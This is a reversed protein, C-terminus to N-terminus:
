DLDKFLENLVTEIQDTSMLDESLLIEGILRHHRDPQMDEQIQLTMARILDEPTIFGMEVALLGFRKEYHEIKSSKSKM